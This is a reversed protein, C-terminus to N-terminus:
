SVIKKCNDGHWRLMINKAGVKNCHPCSYLPRVIGSLSKSIKESHEKSKPVGSTSKSIKLKTADSVKSGTKIRSLREKFEESRKKGTCQKARHEVVHAPQKRGTNAKKAAESLKAVQEPTRKYGGSGEGGDTMNHLIGNHVDKRGYWRIMRRELAWAGIETLNCELVVIRSTDKPTRFKERKQHAYGRKGFGKGIYYPQGNTRLYAYVYFGSPPNSKSYINM